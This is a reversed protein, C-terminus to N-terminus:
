PAPRVRGAREALMLEWAALHAAAAADWTFNAAHKRREVAAEPDEAARLGERLLHALLQAFAEAPPAASGTPVPIFRPGLAARFAPLDSAVVALGFRLAELPTVASGEGAALHVLVSAGAVREPLDREVPDAIWEVRERVPSRGLAVGFAEAADGPRGIFTLRAAVGRQSLEEFAELVACPQRAARIAGLVLLEPPTRRAVTRAGLDRAWHDAGVPVVVCRARPVGYRESVTDAFAADFTFVGDAGHVAQRTELDRASGPEPLEALALTALGRAGRGRPPALPHVRHFIDPSGSLREAGLGIRALGELARRPVRLRRRVPAPGLAAALGLPAGEMPRPGLGGEFLTLRPADSRQVLARVLERVYRGIGPAHQVAPTYDLGIHM